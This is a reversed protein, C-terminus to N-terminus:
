GTLSNKRVVRSSFFASFNYLKTNKNNVIILVEKYILSSTFVDGVLPISATFPITRAKDCQSDAVDMCCSRPVEYSSPAIASLTMDIAGQAEQPKILINSSYDKYGTAGCCKM